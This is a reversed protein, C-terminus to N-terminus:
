RSSSPTERRDGALGGRARHRPRLRAPDRADRGRRWRERNLQRERDAPQRAAGAIRRGGREACQRARSRDAARPPRRRDPADRRELSPVGIGTERMRRDAAWATARPRAARRLEQDSGASFPGFPVRGLTRRLAWCRPRLGHEHRRCRTVPRRIMLALQRHIRERFILGRSSELSPEAPGSKPADRRLHFRGNCALRM